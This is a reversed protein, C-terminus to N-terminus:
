ESESKSVNRDKREKEGGEGGNGEHRREEERDKEEEVERMEEWEEGEQEESLVWRDSRAMEGRGQEMRGLPTGINGKRGSM